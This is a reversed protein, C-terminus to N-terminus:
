KIFKTKLYYYNIDDSKSHIFENAENDTMKAFVHKSNVKLWRNKDQSLFHRITKDKRLRCINYM